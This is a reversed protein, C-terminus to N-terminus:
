DACGRVAMEWFWITVSGFLISFYCLLKWCYKNGVSTINKNGMRCERDNLKVRGAMTVTAKM